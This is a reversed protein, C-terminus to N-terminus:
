GRAVEVRRAAVLHELRASEERATEASALQYRRIMLYGWALTFAALM